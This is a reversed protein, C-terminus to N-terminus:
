PSTKQNQHLLDGRRATVGAAFKRCYTLRGAETIYKDSFPLHCPYKTFPLLFHGSSTLFLCIVPIKQSLYFSTVM